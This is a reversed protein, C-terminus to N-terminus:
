AILHCNLPESENSRANIQLRFAPLHLNTVQQQALQLIALITQQNQTNSFNFQTFPAVATEACIVIHTESASDPHPYAIANHHHTVATDKEPAAWQELGWENGAKTNGSALHFHIQPVDQYHGGNVVISFPSLHHSVATQQLAAYVALIKNQTDEDTLNLAMFSPLRKKPVGLLHTQWWPVPHRFVVADPTNMLKDIPM